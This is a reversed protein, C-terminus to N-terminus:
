LFSHPLNTDFNRCQELMNMFNSDDMVVYFWVVNTQAFIISFISEVELVGIHVGKAKYIKTERLRVHDVIFVDLLFIELM